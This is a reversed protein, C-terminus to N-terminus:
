KDRKGENQKNAKSNTKRKNKLHTHSGNKCAHKAADTDTGRGRDRDCRLPSVERGRLSAALEDTVGRASLVQVGDALENNADCAACFCCRLAQAAPRGARSGTVGALGTGAKGGNSEGGQRDRVAGTKNSRRCGGSLSRTQMHAFVHSRLPLRPTYVPL